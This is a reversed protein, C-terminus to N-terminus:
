PVIAVRAQRREKNQKCEKREQRETRYTSRLFRRCSNRVSRDYDIVVAVPLSKCRYIWCDCRRTSEASLDPTLTPISRSRPSSRRANM